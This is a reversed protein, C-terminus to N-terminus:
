VAAPEEVPAEEAVVEPAEDIVEETDEEVEPYVLEKWAKVVDDRPELIAVVHDGRLSFEAEDSVYCYQGFNVGVVGEDNQTYGITRPQSLWYGVIENTEKNEIQKTDAIIQQGVATVLVKVTMSNIHMFSARVLYLM